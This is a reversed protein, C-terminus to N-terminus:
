FMKKYQKNRLSCLLHYLESMYTYTIVINIQEHLYFALIQHLFCTSDKAPKSTLIADSGVTDRTEAPINSIKWLKRHIKKLSQGYKHEPYQHLPHLLNWSM